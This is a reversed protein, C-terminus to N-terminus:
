ENAENGFLNENGDEKLIDLIEALTINIEYLTKCQFIGQDMARNEFKEKIEDARKM